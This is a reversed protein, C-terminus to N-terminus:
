AGVLAAIEEDTLGIAKLKDLAALRADEKAQLEAKIRNNEEIDLERQAIEEATMEREVEEASAVDIIKITPNTM